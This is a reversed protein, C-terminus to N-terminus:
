DTLEGREQRVSAVSAWVRPFAVGPFVCCPVGRFVRKPLQSHSGLTLFGVPAPPPPTVSPKIGRSTWM